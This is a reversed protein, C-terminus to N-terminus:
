TLLKEKLTGTPIMCQESKGFWKYRNRAIFVYIADRIKRPIISFIAIIKYPWGLLRFVKISVDSYISTKGEYLLIVTEDKEESVLNLESKILQGAEDQLTAFRFLDSQDNRHVFQIFKDCLICVGDYFIIPHKHSLAELEALTM